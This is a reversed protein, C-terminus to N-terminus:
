ANQQKLKCSCCALGIHIERPACLRWERTSNASRMKAKMQVVIVHDSRPKALAGRWDLPRHWIEASSKSTGVLNAALERKGRWKLCLVGALEGDYMDGGGMCPGDSFILLYQRPLIKSAGGVIVAGELWSVMEYIIMGREAGSCMPARHLHLREGQRPCPM